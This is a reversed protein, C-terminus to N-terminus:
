AIKESDTKIYITSAIAYFRSWKSGPASKNALGRGGWYAAGLNSNRNILVNSLLFLFM